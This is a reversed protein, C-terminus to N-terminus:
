RSSVTAKELSLPYSRSPAAREVAPQPTPTRWTTPTQLISRDPYSADSSTFFSLFFPLFFLQQRQERTTMKSTSSFSTSFLTETNRPTLSSVKNIFQQVFLQVVRGSSQGHRVVGPIIAVLAWDDACCIKRTTEGWTPKQTGRWRLM